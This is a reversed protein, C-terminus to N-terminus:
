LIAEPVVSPPSRDLAFLKNWESDTWVKERCYLHAYVGPVLVQTFTVGAPDTFQMEGGVSAFTLNFLFEHWPGDPGPVPIRVAQAEDSFNLAVIVSPNGEGRGYVLVCQSEYRWIPVFGPTRLVGMRRRFFGMARHLRLLPGTAESQDWDLPNLERPLGSALRTRDDEGYEDGMYLMPIGPHTYLAITPTQLRWWPSGGRNTLREDDHSDLFVVPPKDDPFGQRRPDMRWELAGLNRHTVADEAGYYFGKAWESNFATDRLLSLENEDCSFHEAIRYRDDGGLTRAAETVAGAGVTTDKWRYYGLTHDFRLGDVGLEDFWVTMVDSVFTHAAPRAYDLDCGGWDKNRYPLSGPNPDTGGFDGLLPNNRTDPRGKPHYDPDYIRAYSFRRSVQNFVADVIVAIGHAHCQEVMALFERRSEDEHAAYGRHPALLHCATIYNWRVGVQWPDSYDFVPMLEVANVGLDVLHPLKAVVGAYTGRALGSVKPDEATFNYVHLEYIVLDRLTPRVYRGPTYIKEERVVSRFDRHVERAYPDSVRCSYERGSSLVKADILYDYVGMPADLRARALWHEGDPALKAQVASAGRETECIVRVGTIEVDRYSPAWLVWDAWGDDTVRAGRRMAQDKM